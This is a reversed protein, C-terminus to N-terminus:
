ILIHLYNLHKMVGTVKGSLALINVRCIRTKTSLVDCRSLDKALQVERAVSWIKELHCLLSCTYLYGGGHRWSFGSLEFCKWDIVLQQLKQMM